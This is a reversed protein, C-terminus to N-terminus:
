LRVKYDKHCTVKTIISTHPTAQKPRHTSETHDCSTFINILLFNAFLKSNMGKRSSKMKKNTESIKALSTKVNVHPYHCHYPPPLDGAAHAPSAAVDEPVVAVVVDSQGHLLGSHPATVSGPLPLLPPLQPPHITCITAPSSSDQYSVLNTQTMSPHRTLLSVM